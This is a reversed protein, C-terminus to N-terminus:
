QRRIRETLSTRPPSCDSVEAGARFAICVLAAAVSGDTQPLTVEAGDPRVVQPTLFSTVPVEAVTIAHPVGHAITARICPPVDTACKDCTGSVCCVFVM